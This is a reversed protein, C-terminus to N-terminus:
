LNLFAAMSRRLPRGLRALFIKRDMDQNKQAVSYKHYNAPEDILLYIVSVDDADALLAKPYEKRVAALRQKALDLMVTREGFNMTGTPCAKVCAPLMGRSVREHCMTCKVIKGTAPDRRPIDYPCSARIDEFGEESIERTKDTYIVAGTDPDHIIAEDVLGAGEHECPPELCHRCQDPFFNWRVVGKELHESFRVVKYNNPNLDPPNQHSGQQKTANAPLENWEKCAIQCGRCATCRSTDILFAKPM